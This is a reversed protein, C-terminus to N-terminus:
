AWVGEDDDEGQKDQAREAPGWNEEEEEAHQVGTALSSARPLGLGIRRTADDRGDRV